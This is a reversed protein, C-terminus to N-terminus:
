ESDKKMGAWGQKAIKTHYKTYSKLNIQSVGYM